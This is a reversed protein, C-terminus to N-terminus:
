AVALGLMAPDANKLFAIAAIIVAIFLISSVVGSCIASLWERSSHKM